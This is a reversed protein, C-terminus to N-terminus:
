KWRRSGNRNGDGKESKWSICKGTKLESGKRWCCSVRTFHFLVVLDTLLCLQVTMNLRNGLSPIGRVRPCVCRPLGAAYKNESTEQLSEPGTPSKTRLPRRGPSPPLKRDRLGPRGTERQRRPTKRPRLQWSMKMRKVLDAQKYVAPLPNRVRRKSGPIKRWTKDFRFITGNRSMWM